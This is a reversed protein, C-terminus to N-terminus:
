VDSELEIMRHSLYLGRRTVYGFGKTVLVDANVLDSSLRGILAVHARANM